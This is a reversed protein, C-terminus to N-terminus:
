NAILIEQWYKNQLDLTDHIDRLVQTNKLDEIQFLPEVKMLERAPINISPTELVDALQAYIEPRHIFEIFKYEKMQM